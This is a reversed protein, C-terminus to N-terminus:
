QRRQRLYNLLVNRLIYEALTGMEHGGVAGTADAAQIVMSTPSAEEDREVYLTQGPALTEKRRQSHNEDITIRVYGHVVYVLAFSGLLLKKGIEGGENPVPEGITDVYFQATGLDRKIM